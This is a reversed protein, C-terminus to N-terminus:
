EEEEEIELEEEEEADAIRALTQLDDEERLNMIKTGQANRNYSSLNKVNLKILTGSTTIVMLTDSEEVVCSGIVYGNKETLKIAKVGKGGRAQVRFEGLPTRKGYGNNTAIFLEGFEEHIDVSIVEDGKALDIGKVGRSFRSVTKVEDEMFTISQGKRTVLTIPKSGNTLCVGIVRDNEDLKIANIGTRRINSYEDLKTKKVVGNKTCFLLNQMPSFERINLVVQVKEDSAIETLLNIIPTGKAGRQSDPIEYGKLTYVKGYNTFFLLNDHKQVVELHKVFDDDNITMGNVGRGNRRQARYTAEPTSKIYGNQTITIVMKENQILDEMTIDTAPPMIETRREKGYEESIRTLDDKVIQKIREENALIDQLDLIKNALEQHELRYKEQDGRTLTRIQRGMIFAAQDEEIQLLNVLSIKAEEYTHTRIIDIVQDLNDLAKVLADLNRIREQAKALDYEAERRVIVYQHKIYEAIMEKLSLLRPKLVGQKNPVLALNNFSFTTQLPTYKYLHNLAIEPTIHKKLTVVIRVNDESSDADGENNVGDRVLFDLAKDPKKSSRNKKTKPDNHWEDYFKQIDRIKDALKKLNTQYPVQTIVIQKYGDVEEIHTKARLVITGRGTEYAKKIPEEGRIEAGTPFDPGKIYQMLGELTIDPDDIQSKIAQVLEILNHPAMNTAMGVAIGATGNALLHPFRAPLVLPEQENGDYNPGFPVIKKDIGRMLEEAVKNMRAETYRMAAARDGEMSGYNGQGDVLPTLLNWPQALRVMTDYVATDGHPHYKGIVDGVIRASKKYAKNHFMSQEHMSYLIRRHVPKMGDRVDPLARSIIVSMSYDLFDQEVEDNISSEKINEEMPEKPDMPEM